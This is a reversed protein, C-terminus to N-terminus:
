SDKISQCISEVFSSSLVIELGWREYKNNYLYNKITNWCTDLTPANEKKQGVGAEKNKLGDVQCIM